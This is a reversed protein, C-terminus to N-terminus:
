MATSGVSSAVWVFLSIAIWCCVCYSCCAVASCPADRDLLHGRSRVQLRLDDLRGVLHLDVLVERLRGDLVRLAHAVRRADLRVSVGGRDPHDALGLRVLVVGFGIHEASVADREDLDHLLGAVALDSHRRIGEYRGASISGARSGEQRGVERLEERLRVSTLRGLRVLSDFVGVVRGIQRLVRGSLFPLSRWLVWLAIRLSSSILLALRPEKGPTPFPKTRNELYGQCM